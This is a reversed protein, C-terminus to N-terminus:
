TRDLALLGLNAFAYGCYVVALPWSKGAAYVCAAAAYCLTPILVLWFSWSM